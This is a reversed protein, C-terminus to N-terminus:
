RHHPKAAKYRLTSVVKGWWTHKTNIKVITGPAPPDQSGLTTAWLQGRKDTEVGV